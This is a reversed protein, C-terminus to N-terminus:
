RKEDGLRALLRRAAAIGKECALVRERSDDGSECARLERKRTELWDIQARRAQEALHAYVERTSRMIEKELVLGFRDIEEALASMDGQAGALMEKGSHLLRRAMQRAIQRTLAPLPLFEVAADVHKEMFDMMQWLAANIPPTGTESLALTIEQSQSVNVPMGLDPIFDYKERIGELLATKDRLLADRLSECLNYQIERAKQRLAASFEPSPSDLCLGRLERIMAMIQAQLKEGTQIGRDMFDNRLGSWGEAREKLEREARLLKEERKRFDGSLNELSALASNIAERLIERARALLRQRRMEMIDPSQSWQRIRERMAEIGRCDCIEAAPVDLPSWIEMGPFDARAANRINELQKKAAPEDLQDLFTVVLAIKPMRRGFLYGRLFQRENLGLPSNASTAVLAADCNELSEFTIDARSALLDDIGPTDYLLIDPKLFASPLRARLVGEADSFENGACFKELNESCLEYAASRGAEVFELSPNQGYGVETLVTTAPVVDEPFISEGVLQNLLRTKGRSFGGALCVGFQKEDLSQELIALRRLGAENGLQSLIDKFENLAANMDVSEM